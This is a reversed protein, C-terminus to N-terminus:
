RSGDYEFWFSGGGIQAQGHMLQSLNEANFYNHYASGFLLKARPNGILLALLLYQETWYIQHEILWNQPMGFPLFIDHVHVIIKKNIQPLLRLYIHICDSGTKVTHTSDIFLIDGNELISNLMYATIEQAPLTRLQLRGDKGAATIFPRPFPEICILEGYGNKKM